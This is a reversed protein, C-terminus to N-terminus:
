LAANVHRDRPFMPLNQIAEVAETASMRERPHGMTMRALFQQTELTCVGDPIPLPRAPRTRTGGHWKIQRAVSKEAELPTSRMSEFPRRGTLLVFMSVGVSWVDSRSSFLGNLVEPANYPITGAPRTATLERTEDDLGEIYHDSKDAYPARIFKQAAGFDVLVVPAQLSRERFVMNEIKVDLHAFDRKHCAEVALLMQEVFVLTDAEDFPRDRNVLVEFLEPGRLEETVMYVTSETEFMEEFQLVNAHSVSKLLDCELVAYKHKEKSMAKIAYRKSNDKRVARYVNGFSGIGLLKGIEYKDLVPSEFKTAVYSEDLHPAAQTFARVPQDLRRASNRPCRPLYTLKRKATSVGHWACLTRM